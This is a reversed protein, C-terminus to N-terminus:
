RHSASERKICDIHKVFINYNNKNESAKKTLKNIKDIDSEKDIFVVLFANKCEEQKLYTHIQKDEDICELLKPNTSVKNEILVKDDGRSIKFDVPGNGSNTEPSIDVNFGADKIRADFLIHVFKSIKPEAIFRNNSAKLLEYGKKDTIVVQLYRILLEAVNKVPLTANTIKNELLLSKHEHYFKQAIEYIKNVIEKDEDLDYAKYNTADEAYKKLLDDRNNNIIDEMIKKKNKLIETKLNYDFIDKVYNIDNHYIWDMLNEDNFYLNTTLFEKPILLVPIERKEENVIYPIEVMGYDWRMENFIFEKRLMVKKTPFSNQEAIRCSYNIFNNKLINLIMDTIRDGNVNRDFLSIEAFDEIGFLGKKVFKKINELVSLATKGTLGSGVNSDYSFGLNAEKVEEFCAMNEKLHQPLNSELKVISKSFFDILKDYSNVFEKINTGKMLMPDIFLLTDWEVQPNFWEDSKSYNYGVYESYRKKM